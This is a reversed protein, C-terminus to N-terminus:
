KRNKFKGAFELPLGLAEMERMEIKNKHFIEELEEKAWELIDKMFPIIKLFERCSEDEYDTPLTYLSFWKCECIEEPCSPQVKEAKSIGSIMFLYSTYNPTKQQLFMTRRLIKGINLGTEEFVERVACAEPSEKEQIKGKPFGWHGFHPRVLLIKDCQKNLIIAGHSPIQWKYEEWKKFVQLVNYKRLFDVHNFFITYFEKPGNM